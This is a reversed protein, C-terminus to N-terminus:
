TTSRRYSRTAFPCRKVPDHLPVDCQMCSTVEYPKLKYPCKTPNLRARLLTRNIKSQVESCKEKVRRPADLVGSEQPVLKFYTHMGVLARPSTIYQISKRSIGMGLAMRPLDTRYNKRVRIYEGSASGGCCMYEFEVEYDKRRKASAIVVYVWEALVQGRYLEIAAGKRLKDSNGALAWAMKRLQPVSLQVGQYFKLSNEVSYVPYKMEVAIDLALAHVAEATMEFGLYRSSMFRDFIRDYIGSILNYSYQHIKRKDTPPADDDDAAASLFIDDIDM